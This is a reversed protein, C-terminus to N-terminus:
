TDAEKKRNEEVFRFVQQRYEELMPNAVDTRAWSCTEYVCADNFRYLFYNEVSDVLTYGCNQLHGACIMAKTSTDPHHEWRIYILGPRYGENLMMYVIQTDMSPYDIKCIDVRPSSNLNNKTLNLAETNICATADFTWPFASTQTLLSTQCWKDILSHTWEPDEPLPSHTYMIRKAIEIRQIADPRNEFVHVKCGISEMFETEPGGFRFGFSWVVASKSRPIFFDHIHQISPYLLTGEKNHVTQLM